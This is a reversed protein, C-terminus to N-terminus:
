VATGFYLLCAYQAPKLVKISVLVVISSLGICINKITGEVNLLGHLVTEGYTDPSLIPQWLEIYHCSIDVSKKLSKEM